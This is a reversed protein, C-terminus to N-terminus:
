PQDLDEVTLAWHAAGILVPCQDIPTKQSEVLLRRYHDISAGTVIAPIGPYHWCPPDRNGQSAKIVSLGNCVATSSTRRVAASAPQPRSAPRVDLEFSLGRCTGGVCM